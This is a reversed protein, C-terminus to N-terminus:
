SELGELRRIRRQVVKRLGPDESRRVGVINVRIESQVEGPGEGGLGADVEEPAQPLAVRDVAGAASRENGGPPRWTGAGHRPDKLEEEGPTGIREQHDLPGEIVRGRPLDEPVRPAPGRVEAEEGQVQAQSGSAKHSGRNGPRISQSLLVM